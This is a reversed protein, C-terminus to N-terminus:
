MATYQVKNSKEKFNQEEAVQQEDQGIEDKVEESNERLAKIRRLEQLELYAQKEETSEFGDKIAVESTKREEIAADIEEMSVSPKNYKQLINYKINNINEAEKQAKRKQEPTANPSTNKAIKEPDTEQQIMDEVSNDADERIQDQQDM